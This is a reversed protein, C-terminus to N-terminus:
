LKTLTGFDITATTTQGSNVFVTCEYQAVELDESSQARVRLRQEGSPVFELAFTGDDGTTTEREYRSGNLKVRANAVPEGNNVIVGELHGKPQGSKIQIPTSQNGSVSVLDSAIEYRQHDVWLTAEGVPVSFIYAEGDSNTSAGLADAAPESAGAIVTADKLPLGDPDVVHVTIDVGQNLAIRINDITDGYDVTFSQRTPAFGDALISLTVEGPQICTKTFRGDPDRKWGTERKKGAWIVSVEDVGTGNASIEFTPMPEGTASNVVQGILLAVPDLAIRAATDGAVLEVRKPAFGEQVATVMYSQDTLNDLAFNGNEDAEVTRHDDYYEEHIGLKAYPVPAGNTDTVQGTITFNTEPFTFDFNEMSQGAALTIERQLLSIRSRDQYVPAIMFRGEPLNRIIFEGDADVPDSMGIPIGRGDLYAEEVWTTDSKSVQSQDQLDDFAVFAFTRWDKQIGERINQIRGAITGEPALQGIFEISSDPAPAKNLGWRKIAYGPAKAEVDYLGDTELNTFQFQGDAGTTVPEFPFGGRTLTVTADAIPEQSANQIVGQISFYAPKATTSEIGQRRIRDKFEQRRQYLREDRADFDPQRPQDNANSEPSRESSGPLLDRLSTSDNRVLLDTNDRRQLVIAAGIAIAILTVIAALRATTKM